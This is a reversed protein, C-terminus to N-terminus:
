RRRQRACRRPPAGYPGAPSPRLGRRRARRRRAQRTFECQDADVDARGADLPDRDGRAALHEGCGLLAIRERRRLGAPRLLIGVVPPAGRLGAQRPQGRPRDAQRPLHVPEDAEVRVAVHDPGRDEPVVLASRRLAGLDLRADPQSAQDLQRAVAGQRSEGRRLQEPQPAVLGIRVGPDRVHEQGLVVHAEPEGALARDVGGVGGARQEEVDGRARPRLLDALRELDRASPQGVRVLRGLDGAGAVLRGGCEADPM